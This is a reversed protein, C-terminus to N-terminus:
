KFYAYWSFQDQLGQPMNKNKEPDYFDEYDEVSGPFLPVIHKPKPRDTEHVRLLQFHGYRAREFGSEYMCKDFIAQPKRCWKFHAPPGSFDICKTYWELEERCTKKVKRFFELGCATVDQGEKLCKRPDKEESRCLMFEKCQNDCYKGLWMASTVLYNHSLPIELNGLEEDSPLHTSEPIM